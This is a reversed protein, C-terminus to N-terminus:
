ARGTAGFGERAQCAAGGAQGDATEAGGRAICNAHGGSRGSKSRVARASWRGEGVSAKEELEPSGAGGAFGEGETGGRGGENGSGGSGTRDAIAARGPGVAAAGACGPM